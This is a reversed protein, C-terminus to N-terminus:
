EASIKSPGSVQDIFELFRQKGTRNGYKKSIRNWWHMGPHPTYTFVINQEKLFERVQSRCAHRYALSSTFIVADPRIAMVVEKFVEDSVKADLGSVKISEGPVEAPRQFYNMCAVETFANVPTEQFLMSNRLATDINRYILAAKKRWQNKIGDSIIARTLFGKSQSTEDKSIGAYWAEPVHHWTFKKGVYHSEAVLLVKRPQDPYNKGVWVMMEPYTQYHSIRSLLHDYRTSCDNMLDRREILAPQNPRM